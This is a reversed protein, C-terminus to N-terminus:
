DDCGDNEMVIDGTDPDIQPSGDTDTVVISTFMMSQIREFHRDMADSVHRDTLGDYIMIRGAQEWLLEDPSPQMLRRMQWDGVGADGIAAQCQCTFFLLALIGFHHHFRKSM